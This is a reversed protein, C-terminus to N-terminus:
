NANREGHTISYVVAFMLVGWTVAHAAIVPWFLPDLMAVRLMVFFMQVYLMVVDFM